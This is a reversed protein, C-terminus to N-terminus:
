EGCLSPDREECWDVCEWVVEPEDAWASACLDVCERFDDCVDDGCGLALLAAVGLCM